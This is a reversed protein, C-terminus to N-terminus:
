KMGATQWSADWLCQSRGRLVCSVHAVRVNHGGLVEVHGAIYGILVHCLWPSQLKMGTLESRLTTPGTAVTHFEGSDYYSRWVLSTTRRMKDAIESVEPQVAFAAYTSTLGKRASALGIAECLSGDGKGLLREAGGLIAESLELPYWASVLVGDAIEAHLEASLQDLVRRLGTEGFRTALYDLRARLATGKIRAV